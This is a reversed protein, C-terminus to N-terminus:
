GLGLHLQPYPNIILIDCWRVPIYSAEIKTTCVIKFNLKVIKNACSLTYTLSTAQVDIIAVM